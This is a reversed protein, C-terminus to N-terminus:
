MDVHAFLATVYVAFSYQNVADGAIAGLRHDSQRKAHPGLSEMPMGMLGCKEPGCLLRELGYAWVKGRPTLAGLVCTPQGGHAGLAQSRSSLAFPMHAFLEFLAVPYMAFSVTSPVLM